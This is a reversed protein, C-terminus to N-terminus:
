QLSLLPIYQELGHQSVLSIANVSEGADSVRAQNGQLGDLDIPM